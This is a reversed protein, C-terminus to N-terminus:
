LVSALLGLVGVTGNGTAATQQISLSYVLGAAPGAGADAYSGSHFVVNGATITIAQSSFVQRSTILTGARIRITWATAATGGTFDVYWALLVITNDVPLTVPPTTAVITETTTTVVTVSPAGTLATNLRYGM